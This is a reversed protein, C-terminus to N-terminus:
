MTYIRTKMLAYIMAPLTYRFVVKLTKYSLSLLRVWLVAHCSVDQLLYKARNQRTM